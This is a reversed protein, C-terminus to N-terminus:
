FDPLEGRRKLATIGADWALRVRKPNTAKRHLEAELADLYAPSTPDDLREDPDRSLYAAVRTRDTPHDTIQVAHANGNLILTGGNIGHPAAKVRARDTANLYAVPLVLHAHTGGHKGRKVAVRYLGSYACLDPLMAEVVARAATALEPSKLPLADLDPLSLRVMALPGVAHMIELSRLTPVHDRTVSPPWGAHADLHAALTPYHVRQEDTLTLPQHKRGRRATRAARATAADRVTAERLVARDRLQKRRKTRTTSTSTTLTAAGM